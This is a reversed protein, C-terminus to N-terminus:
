YDIKIFKSQLRQNKQTIASLWYVGPPLQQIDLSLQNTYQDLQEQYVMKNLADYIAISSLKYEEQAITLTNSSPNPFVSLTQEVAKRQVQTTNLMSISDQFITIELTDGALDLTSLDDSDIMRTPEVVVTVTTDTGIFTLDDEIIFRLEGIQGFGLINSDPDFLYFAVEKGITGERQFQQDMNLLVIGSENELWDDPSQEIVPEIPGILATDIYIKFAIGAFDLAPREATGINIPINIESGLVSEINQGEVEGLWIEPDIGKIGSSFDEGLYPAKSSDQNLQIVFLDILNVQGDGNCDAFAFNQGDPFSESWDAGALQEQWLFSSTSRPIGENGNALAWYLVDVANVEGNDTIDGPWIQAQLGSFFCQFFLTIIIFYRSGPM